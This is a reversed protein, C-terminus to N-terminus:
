FFLVLEIDIEPCHVACAETELDFSQEEIVEIALLLMKGHVPGSQKIQNALEFKFLASKMDFLRSFEKGFLDYGHCVLPTYFIVPFM